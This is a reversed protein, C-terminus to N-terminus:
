QSLENWNARRHRQGFPRILPRNLQAMIDFYAQTGLLEHLKASPFTENFFIFQDFDCEGTELLALCSDTQNSFGLKEANALIDQGFQWFDFTLFNIDLDRQLFRLRRELLRNFRQSLATGRESLGADRTIPTAGFNVFNGVMITEAGAGVLTRLVDEHGDVAARVMDYAVRNDPEFTAAIVDNGGNFVFFFADPDAKGGRPGLYAEVQARLDLEGDGGALAGLAAYNTGQEPGTLHLSPEASLGLREALVDVINPGNTTRNEFFPPPFDGNISAFNGTDTLSGSFIVLQSFPQAGVLSPLLAVAASM